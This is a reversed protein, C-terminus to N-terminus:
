QHRNVARIQLFSKPEKFADALTVQAKKLAEIEKTRSAKRAEYTVEKGSSDKDTNVCAPKLDVLYQETKELEASTDKKTSQLHTIKDTRRSKEATKMESEKTRRAKEIANAKMASEFEAQDVSEQSKTKGEMLSFDASITELISIIGGPQKKPDSVETYPSSWTAPDKPLKVPAQLFEWSEKDISGSEKYFAQLVAIANSVAKQADQADKISVANEKKGTNRIETAEKVFTEIDSLMTGATTIEETLLAVAATEVKIKANLDKIKDDKDEKMANTKELEEDCWMKHEDESKQEDMLRFIMKEIMNNVADFPGNLHAKVEMALRELAKSHSEQAAQRLLAV